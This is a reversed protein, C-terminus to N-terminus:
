YAMMRNIKRIQKILNAQNFLNNDNVKGNLNYHKLMLDKCKPDNLKEIFSKNDLMDFKEAIAKATSDPVSESLDISVTWSRKNLPEASKEDVDKSSKRKRSHNLNSIGWRENDLQYDFDKLMKRNEDIYKKKILDQKADKLRQNLQHKMKLSNLQFELMKFLKVVYDDLEVNWYAM